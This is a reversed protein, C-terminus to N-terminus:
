VIGKSMLIVLSSDITGERKMYFRQDDTVFDYPKTEKTESNMECVMGPICYNYSHCRRDSECLNQCEILAKVAVVKFTHGKLAKGNASKQSPKCQGGAAESGAILIILYLAFLVFSM